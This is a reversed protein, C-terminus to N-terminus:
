VANAIDFEESDEARYDDVEDFDGNTRQKSPRRQYDRAAPRGRAGGEVVQDNISTTSSMPSTPISGLELEESEQLFPLATPQIVRYAQVNRSHENEVRVIRIRLWIDMENLYQYTCLNWM